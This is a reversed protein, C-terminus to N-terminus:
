KKKIEGILLIPNDANNLGDYVEILSVNKKKFSEWTQNDMKSKLKEMDEIFDYPEIISYYKNDSVAKPLNGFNANFSLNPNFFDNVFQNVVMTRKSEKFYYIHYIEKKYMFGFTIARESEFFGIVRFAYDTKKLSELFVMINEYTKSLYEDPVKSEGFDIYYKPELHNLANINYITDNFSYLFLTENKLKQFNNLDGLHLFKAENKKIPIFKSTIEGDETLLNLRNKSKENYWGSGIYVAYKDDKLKTFSYADLDTKIEKIFNGLKDYINIKKSKSDYISFTNEETDFFYDSLNIYEGPGKGRFDFKDLFDGNENFIFLGNDAQIVYNGDHVELKDIQGMIQNDSSSELKLLEINEYLSSIAVTTANKPNVYISEINLEKPIKNSKSNKKCSIIILILVILLSKIKM